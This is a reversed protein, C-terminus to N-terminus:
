IWPVLWNAAAIKDFLTGRVPFAAKWAASRRRHSGETLGGSGRHAEIWLNRLAYVGGRSRFAREEAISSIAQILGAVKAPVSSWHRSRSDMEGSRPCEDLIDVGAAAGGRSEGACRAAIAGM